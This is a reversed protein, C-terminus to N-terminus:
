FQMQLGVSLGVSSFPARISPGVDPVGEQPPTNYSSSISDSFTTEKKRTTLEGLKDVGDETYSTLTGTEPQYSMGQYTVEALVSLNSSVPILLGAAGCFGLAVGGSLEAEIVTTANDTTDEDHLLVWPVAVIAGIRAQVTMKGLRGGVVVAPTFRLARGSQEVWSVSTSGSSSSTSDSRTASGHLYGVALELGVREGVEIGVAGDISVGQGFSFDSRERSSFDSTYSSRTTIQEGAATTAAGFALRWYKANADIPFSAAAVVAVFVITPITYARMLSGESPSGPFAGAVAIAPRNIEDIGNGADYSSASVKSLWCVRPHAPIPIPIPAIFGSKGSSAGPATEPAEREVKLNACMLVM